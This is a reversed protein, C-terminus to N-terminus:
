LKTVSLSQTLSKTLAVNNVYLVGRLGYQGDQYYLVILVFYEYSCHLIQKMSGFKIIINKYLAVLQNPQFNFPYLYLQHQFSSDESHVNMKKIFM